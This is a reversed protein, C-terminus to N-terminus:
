KQLGSRQQRKRPSRRGVAAIAQALTARTQVHAAAENVLQRQVAELKEGLSERQGRVLSLEIAQAKSEDRLNRDSKKAEELAAWNKKREVAAAEEGQLRRKREKALESELRKASQRAQDFEALFRREHAVERAELSQRQQRWTEERAQLAKEREAQVAANGLRASELSRRLKDVDADYRSRLTALEGQASALQSRLAESAARTEMLAKEIAANTAAWQEERRELEAQAASLQARSQELATREQRLEANALTRAEHKAHNWANRLNPPM